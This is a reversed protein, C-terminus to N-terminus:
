KAKGKRQLSSVIPPSVPFLPGKFYLTTDLLTGNVARRWFFSRVVRFSWMIFRAIPSDYTVTAEGVIKGDLYVPLVRPQKM